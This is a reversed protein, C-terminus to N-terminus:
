IHILSLRHKTGDEMFVDTVVEGAKLVLPGDEVVNYAVAGPAAVVSAATVNVLVAGDLEVTGATVAAAVSKHCTGAAVHVDSLCSKDDVVLQSGEPAVCPRPANLFERMAGAEVGDEVLRLANRLYLKLQGYDWWYADGGVDVPGLLHKGGDDFRQLMARVRGHHATSAVADIGKKAMLAVYADLPLTMPMWWHPDSDFCGRKADLEKAFEATLAELLAATVSFSGLSTGVDSIGGLSETMAVATGHDVKEIQCAAGSKGVAVLGYKELGRDKWTAADPMPALLCLIEAPARPANAPARPAYAPGGFAPPAWPAPAGPAPADKADVKLRAERRSVVLIM